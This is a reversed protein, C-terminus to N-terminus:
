KEWTMANGVINFLEQKKYKKTEDFIGIKLAMNELEEVKYHSIAKIPKFYNELCIKTEKMKNIDEITKKETDVTFKGYSEKQIVYYPQEIGQNSIFELMLKKNPHLLIININYYVSLALLCIISTDKQVTLLESMIEQINIKTIKYNTTKMKTPQEKIFNGIKQKTELKVIGYNRDISMYEDYGNAIIYISWFLGDQQNPSYISREQIKPKEPTKITIKIPIKAEKELEKELEKEVPKEIKIEIKELSIEQEPEQESEKITEKLPEKLVEESADLITKHNNKTLMFQSIDSVTTENTNYFLKNLFKSVYM